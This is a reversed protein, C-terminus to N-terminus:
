VQIKLFNWKYLSFFIESDMHQVINTYNGAEYVGNWQKWFIKQEQKMNQLYMDSYWGYSAIRSTTEM